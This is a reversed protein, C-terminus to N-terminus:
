RKELRRKFELKETESLLDYMSLVGDVRAHHLQGEVLERVKHYRAVAKSSFYTPVVKTKELWSTCEQPTMTYYNVEAVEVFKIIWKGEERELKEKADVACHKIAKHCYENTQQSIKSVVDTLADIESPLEEIYRLAALIAERRLVINKICEEPLQAQMLRALKSDVQKLEAVNGANAVALIASHYDDMVGDKIKGISSIAAVIRDRLPKSVPVPLDKAGDIFSLWGTLKNVLDEAEQYNSTTSSIALDKECEILSSEYHQKALLEAEVESVRQYHNICEFCHICKTEDIEYRYDTDALGNKILRIASHKCANECAHCGACLQYKTIQCKFKLEIEVTKTRAAIPTSLITIKLETSGIRGQLKMIPQKTKSDLIYIEGLRAKGMDFNLIGFPKFFEYLEPTIPKTLSYNFSKADTACPKFEIAVNKSLEMGAGGQRAKWGGSKVYDAPDEKGMKKAFDLLIDNFRKFQEPMYISALFQSWQSNNPCCWCGVRTYGYRYASNFDIGITMLYLWIDYDFWDIIPSAVLQQSIKRGGSSREYTSRSASESRRIGYFTLITKKDGFTRKIKEGIFGTKFITCCWRLSRSPPGFSDCLKFFDQEKNEARLMPTKRNEKKFRQVYDYTEPFELTTNGFIHIIDPKSLAKRVLDSVVTSDKGGSFSVFMACTEDDLFHETIKRIFDHAEDTIHGFRVSNAEVWRAIMCNFADYNNQPMYRALELRVQDPDHNKLNAVSFSIRKGNVYYRNGTGNWVSDKLFALPKNLLVELLLREEPFVPRADSTFHLGKKGCRPCVEDYLPVNCDDCWFLETFVEDARTHCHPCTSDRGTQGDPHFSKGCKKCTYTIMALGM